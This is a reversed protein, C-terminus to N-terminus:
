GAHAVAPRDPRDFAPAAVAVPAAAQFFRQEHRDWAITWRGCPGRRNKTLTLDFRAPGLGGFRDPVSPAPAVTWRTAAGSPVATTHHRLLCALGGGDRAALSLRRTATLDAAKGEDPLELIVAGVAPCKLAEEAAWLADAPTRAPVLTLRGLDQGLFRLGPAYPFGGLRLANGGAIWLAEGGATGLLGLLLGTVPGLGRTELGAFEHLAGAALGGGLAVDIAEVGFRCSPRGAM